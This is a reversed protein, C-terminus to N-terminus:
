LDEKPYPANIGMDGMCNHVMKRGVTHGEQWLLVANKRSGTAPM